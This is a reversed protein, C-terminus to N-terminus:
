AQHSNHRRPQPCPPPSAGTSQRQNSSTGGRLSERKLAHKAKVEESGHRMRARFIWWTSVLVEDSICVLATGGKLDVTKEKLRIGARIVSWARPSPRQIINIPLGTVVTAGPWVQTHRTHSVTAKTGSHMPLRLTTTTATMRLDEEPIDQRKFWSQM